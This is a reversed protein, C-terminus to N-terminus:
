GPRLLLRRDTSRTEGEASVRVAKKGSVPCEHECVGCGICKEVDVYPRQLRVQVEIQDGPALVTEVGSDRPLEISDASNGTVRIRKDPAVLCYYDGTAFKGPELTQEIRVMGRAVQAVKLGGDRITAFHERTYIAKPSVPCNEECVICPKDMAWPLCRGRDVFATGIRVPGVEAFPGRGLKEALSIPRIASTPCVQGCATCSLQCGSSGIRNNLVPTWLVELGREFGAPQLVNTPCVRMCLGCKICRKLFEPESLSGPPRILRHEWNAALKGGLRLAPAAVVGSTMALVFGRRSVDPGVKEGAVSPRVQYQVLGEKCDDLCNLCLVCESIRIKGHPDCGGECSRGCLRCDTCQGEARGVRWLAFRCVIGLLAGLPCIFRCYFRPVVLNALVAAGFVVLIVPAAEYFRTTSSVIGFPRDLIPLLLLNVSRTVLPIPDLLGIQLTATLSPFAAMFLLVILCFYKIRQAPRYRNLEIKKAVGAQRHALYGVFHHLSGFPCVWGCFFRGLVMTLVLVLVGWLLPRYLTHTALATGIGALPDLWLFLDVPWGRLQWLKEGVTAVLSLWLFLGFFFVQSIRRTTVIGMDTENLPPVDPASPNSTPPEPAPM